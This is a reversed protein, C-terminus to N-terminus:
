RKFIERWGSIFYEGFIMVLTVVAGVFLGPLLLWVMLTEM